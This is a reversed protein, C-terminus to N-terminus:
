YLAMDGGVRKGGLYGPREEVLNSKFGAVNVLDTKTNIDVKLGSNYDTTDNDGKFKLSESV